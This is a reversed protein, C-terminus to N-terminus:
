GNKVEADLSDVNKFEGLPYEPIMKEEIFKLADMPAMGWNTPCPCILEVFGYGIGDLKARANDQDPDGILGAIAGALFAGLIVEVGLAEALVVWAVMLAFAARVRIQATASSLEDLVRPLFELSSFRRAIRAALVFILLLLPILLLDFTLGQSRIAIAVTLLLLTVMDAISAATLTYQGFESRLLGREKLVPVVVGLSTTSLILGVLIPSEILAFGTLGFAALTALGITGALTALALPLPGRRGLGSSKARDVLSGIDMELGSLFMLFTFGFEQLFTLIASPEVLDLGSRGILIGALIEGVVIPVAIRRLRNALIPVM